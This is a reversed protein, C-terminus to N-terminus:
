ISRLSTSSAEDPHGRLAGESGGISVPKGTVVGPVRTGSRCRTPTWGDLGDDASEDGHGARSHGEGARHDVLESTFRRTLRQLEDTSHETPNIIVGGKAGGFPVGVVACKWTMWMSLAKVEELTVHSDYRIGGKTPGRAADHIVRYGEFIRFSGDDMQVPFETQFVTKFSTLYERRDDGLGIADAATDFQKLASQLAQDM